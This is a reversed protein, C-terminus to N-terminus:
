IAPIVINSTYYTTNLKPDWTFTWWTDHFMWMNWNYAVVWTWSSPLRYPTQYEWTQTESIKINTCKRFMDRYCNSGFDSPLEPLTTLSTCWEYMKAYCYGNVRGILPCAPCTTLSTCDKFLSYYCYSSTANTYNKNLLYNIAWSWAISGTMEFQYYNSSSTSFTTNSTSTNRFYIKDWVNTLTITDWFTYNTWPNLWIHTELLVSTPSWNRNLKITSNANNATFCLLNGIIFFAVNIEDSNQLTIPNSTVLIEITNRIITIKDLTYDSSPTIVIEGINSWNYQLIYNWNNFVIQTWLPLETLSYNKWPANTYVATWGTSNSLTVWISRREHYWKFINRM